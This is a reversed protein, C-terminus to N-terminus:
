AGIQEALPDVCPQLPSRGQDDREVDTRALVQGLTLLFAADEAPKQPRTSDGAIPTLWNPAPEASKSWRAAM